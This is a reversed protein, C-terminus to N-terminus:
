KKGSPVLRNLEEFWNRVLIFETVPQPKSEEWKVMLFRQGDPSIDWNRIPDSTGYGEQEFLLRPKGASFISGIQVDVAWLKPGQWYFLQKGNRSWMPSRGRESSVQTKSGPGPHPQVYVEFRGSEDSAYAMWRGDPSFEPHWASIRSNLFPTVKRDQLGLTM